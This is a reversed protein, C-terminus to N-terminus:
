PRASVSRLRVRHGDATRHVMVQEGRAPPETVDDLVLTLPGFDTILDVTVVHSDRRAAIVKGLWRQQQRPIANSGHGDTHLTQFFLSM